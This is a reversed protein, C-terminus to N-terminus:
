QHRPKKTEYQDDEEGRDSHQRKKSHSEDRRDYSEHRSRPPSDNRDESPKPSNGRDDESKRATPRADRGFPDVENNEERPRQSRDYDDRRPRYDDRRPADYSRREGRDYRGDGGRSGYDRRRDDDYGDRRDGRNYSDRPPRDHHRPRDDYRRPRDDYQKHNSNHRMNESVRDREDYRKRVDARAAQILSPPIGSPSKQAEVLMEWLETMFPAADRELMDNVAILMDQPDVAEQDIFANVYNILVEDELGAFLEVLKSSSWIKIQDRNVRSLDVKEKFIEPFKMSKKRKAM